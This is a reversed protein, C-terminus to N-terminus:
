ADVRGQEFEWQEAEGHGRRLEHPAKLSGLYLGWFSSKELVCTFLEPRDEANRAIRVLDCFRTVLLGHPNLDSVRGGCLDILEFMAERQDSASVGYLASLDIGGFGTVGDLEYRAKDPDDLHCFYRLLGDKSEVNYFAKVHLPAFMDALQQYSKPGGFTVLVHWHAPKPQGVEPPVLEAGRADHTLPRGDNDKHREHWDDVDEASYTDQDHLPSLAAKIHLSRLLICVQRYTHEREEGENRWVIFTALKARTKGTILRAM